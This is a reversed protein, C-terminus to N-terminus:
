WTVEKGEQVLYFPRPNEQLALFLDYPPRSLPEDSLKFTGYHCGISAKSGVDDHIQIAEKPNVHAAKMFARPAYAGIPIISLDIHPFKSGIERFHQENYGTDGAYYLCKDAIEVIYGCWLSQNRDFIGRGSFHQSPVATIRFSGHKYQSWWDMEYVNTIGYKQLTAKLGLPVIFVAKPNKVHLMKCAQLDLHDYHNHSILVYDIPPVAEIAIGPKKHRKPGIFHFPSARDAWVPDILFHSKDYAIYFSSHGIWSLTAKGAAKYLMSSPSFDCPPPICAGADKYYGILWLLVQGLSREADVGINYFKM